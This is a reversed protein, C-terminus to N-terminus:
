LNWVVLRSVEEKTLGYEKSKILARLTFVEIEKLYVYDVLSGFSLSSLRLLKLSANFIQNRMSIEFDLL